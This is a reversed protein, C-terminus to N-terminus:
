LELFTILKSINVLRQYQSFTFPIKISSFYKNIKNSLHFRGLKAHSLIKKNKFRRFWYSSFREM